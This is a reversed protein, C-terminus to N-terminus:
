KQTVVVPGSIRIYHGTGKERFSFRNGHEGSLVKGDSEWTKVVEGNQYLEVTGDSGLSTASDWGANTCGSCVALGIAVVLFLCVCIEHKTIKM